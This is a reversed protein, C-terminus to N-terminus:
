MPPDVWDFFEDSVSTYAAAAAVVGLSVLGVASAFSRRARPRESANRCKRGKCWFRRMRKEPRSSPRSSTDSEDTTSSSGGGGGSSSSLALQGQEELDDDDSRKRKKSTSESDVVESSQATHTTSALVSPRCESVQAPPPDHVPPDTQISQDGNVRVPAPNDQKVLVEQLLSSIIAMEADVRTM